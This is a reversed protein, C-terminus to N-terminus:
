DTHMALKPNKFIEYYFVSCNLALGLCVPTHAADREQMNLAEQYTGQSNNIMQKRNDVCAVDALDQFYNRNRKLHFLKSEPNTVRVM